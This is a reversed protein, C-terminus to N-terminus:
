LKNEGISEYVEKSIIQTEVGVGGRRSNAKETYNKDSILLTKTIDKDSAIREMFFNTDHGLELEWIDLIVDIGNDVLHESLEKVWEQHQISGWSYSIFIKPPNDMNVDQISLEKSIDPRSNKSALTSCKATWSTKGLM